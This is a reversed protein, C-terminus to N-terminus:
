EEAYKELEQLIFELESSLRSLDFVTMRYTASKAAAPVKDPAYIKEDGRTSGFLGGTHYVYYAPFRVPDDDHEDCYAIIFVHGGVTEHGPGSTARSDRRTPM